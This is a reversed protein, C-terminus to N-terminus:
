FIASFILALFHLIKNANKECPFVFDSFSWMEIVSAYSNSRTTNIRIPIQSQALKQFYNRQAELAKIKNDRWVLTEKMERM